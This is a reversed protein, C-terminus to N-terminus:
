RRRSARRRRRGARMMARVVGPSRPAAGPTPAEVPNPPVRKVRVAYAKPVARKLYWPAYRRISGIEAEVEEVADIFANKAASKAGGTPRMGQGVSIAVEAARLLTIGLGTYRDRGQYSSSRAM